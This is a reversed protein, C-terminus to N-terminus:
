HRSYLSLARGLGLAPDINGATEAAKDAANEAKSARSLRDVATLYRETLPLQNSRTFDRLLAAYREAASRLGFTLSSEIAEKYLWLHNHAITNDRLLASGMRLIQERKTEEAFVHSILGIIVADQYRSSTRELESLAKDALEIAPEAMGKIIHAKALIGWLFALYREASIQRTLTLSIQAHSIAGDADARELAMLAALRHANMQSRTEGIRESIEIASEADSVAGAYDNLFFRTHGRMHLTNAIVRFHRHQEAFNIANDFCQFATQIKAVHYHGLGVGRLALSQTLEDGALQASELARQHEALARKPEDLPLLVSGRLSHIRARKEENNATYFECENLVELADQYRDQELLLRARFTLFNYTQEGEINGELASEVTALSAQYDGLDRECQALLLRADSLRHLDTGIELARQLLRRASPVAFLNLDEQAACLYAEFADPHASRDLHRAYQLSNQGKFITAAAAHLDRRQSDLLLEYAVRRVFTSLFRFGNRFPLVFKHRILSSCDFEPKKSLHRLDSIEFYEGLVSACILSWRDAIPLRDIKSLVLTRMSVASDENGLDIDQDALLNVIFPNGAALDVITDAVEANANPVLAAYLKRIDVNSLPKLPLNIVNIEQSEPQWAEFTEPRRSSLLIILPEARCLDAAHSLVKLLGVQDPRTNEVILTTPQRKALASLIAAFVAGLKTHFSTFTLSTMYGGRDGPDERSLVLTLLDTEDSTLVGTEQITEAFAKGLMAERGILAELLCGSIQGISSMGSEASNELLNQRLVLHGIHEARRQFENLIRSKGIGLAGTLTVVAGVNLQDTRELVRRLQRLESVRNVFPTNVDNSPTQSGGVFQWIEVPGEVGKLERSGLLETHFRSGVIANLGPSLITQGSGAVGNLRAALNVTEGIVTYERGDHGIASAIVEGHAIGIHVSLEIGVELSLGPMAAQIEEACLTARYPDDPHAAPAGFLAMVADGIHKDITGGHDLIIGDCVEYFRTLLKHTEEAGIRASLETYGTLDVFLVTAERREGHVDAANSYLPKDARGFMDAISSLIIHRHGVSIIGLARLDADNLSPLIDVSIHHAEFTSTYQQLNIQSLWSEIDSM